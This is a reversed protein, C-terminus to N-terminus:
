RNPNLPRLSLHLNGSAGMQWNRLIMEADRHHLKDPHTVIPSYRVPCGINRQPLSRITAIPIEKEITQNYRLIGTSHNRYAINVLISDNCQIRFSKTEFRANAMHFSLSFRGTDALPIYFYGNSDTKTYQNYTGNSHLSVQMGAVAKLDPDTILGHILQTKEQAHIEGCLGCSLLLFVLLKM